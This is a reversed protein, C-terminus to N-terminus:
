QGSLNEPREEGEDEHEDEIEEQEAHHLGIRDPRQEPSSRGAPSAPSDVPPTEAQVLRQGSLEQEIQPLRRLEVESRRDSVGVPPSSITAAIGAVTARTPTEAIRDATMPVMPPIM